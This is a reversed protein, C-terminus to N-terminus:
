HRWQKKLIIIALIIITDTVDGIIGSIVAASILILIMFDTLQHLLMQFVTKKKKDTIQNKGHEVLRQSATLNDIGSPTTNLLQAIEALPLLHWNM